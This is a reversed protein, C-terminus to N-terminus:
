VTPARRIGMLAPLRRLAVVIPGALAVLGPLLIWFSGERAPRGLSWALSARQAWLVYGAVGIGGLLAAVIGMRLGRRRRITEPDMLVTWALALLASAGSVIMVAVIGMFELTSDSKPTKSTALTVLMGLLAFMLIPGFLIGPLIVGFVLELRRTVDLRRFGHPLTM